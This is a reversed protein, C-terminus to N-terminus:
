RGVFGLAAGLGGDRPSFPRSGSAAYRHACCFEPWGSSVKAAVNTLASNPTAVASSARSPARWMTASHILSSASRRLARRWSRKSSPTDDAAFGSVSHGLLFLELHVVLVGLRYLVIGRWRMNAMRRPSAAFNKLKRRSTSGSRAMPNKLPVHQTLRAVPRGLELHGNVIRPAIASSMWEPSIRRQVSGRESVSAM